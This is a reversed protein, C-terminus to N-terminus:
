LMARLPFSDSGLSANTLMDAVTLWSNCSEKKM